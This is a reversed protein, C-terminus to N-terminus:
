NDMDNEVAEKMKKIIKESIESVVSTHEFDDEIACVTKFDCYKCASNERGDCPKLDFIGKRIGCATDKIKKEVFAFITKFDEETIVPNKARKKTPKQFVFRGKGEKDMADIVKDDNLIMGNMTLPNPNSNTEVGRKSPMYLIGAPIMDNYKSGSVSCIIYLYLLMQMNQGYLVDALCFEKSNTKYDVIRVHDKGDPNHLVDVRDIQGDVVVEQDDMFKLTLYPIGNKKNNISLEFDVPVFDSNKFQEVMHKLLIKLTKAMESYVFKFDVSDLFESGCITKLYDDMAIDVAKDIEEAQANSFNEGFKGIVKELVFHVVTGRQMNDLEAKQLRKLGLVYKYFYSLPCKSYVEIRSASLFMQNKFLKDCIDKSIRREIRAEINKLAEYRSEYIENNKYIDDLVVSLETSSNRVEAYRSFGEEFTEPLDKTNEAVSKPFVTKLKSFVSSEEVAKGDYDACHRLIYVKQSACCLSSYALFNEDIVTKRFRDSIEIGEKSLAVRDNRLLIGSDAAIAPFEGLNMGIAFVVKPRAPRIRDASGCAVEDLTRPISGISCSNFSLELMDIYEKVSISDDSYCRVMNDLLQMVSDWSQMIFDANDNDERELYKECYKKVSENVKFLMLSDYVAKSIEAANGDFSKKLALIPVIIRKRIENLRQLEDAIKGANSENVSEFGLPNMNWEKTWADGNIEWIYVYEEILNAEDASIPFLETKLLALISESKFSQASKLLSLVFRSVPSLILSRRKDLFCPTNYKKSALAIRREYKSIDRAIIVFDKFRYNETRVLKHITKFVYEVEEVPNKFHAIKINESNENFKIDASTSVAKELTFLENSDYHPEPLLVPKLVTINHEKAYAELKKVTDIVNSFVGNGSNGIAQRCSFSVVVNEAQLIMLKLVKLQLGTFGKFADIYVTKGNFFSHDIAKQYFCELDDLPDIYIGKLMDNYTSYIIAIESIKDALNGKKLKDCVSILMNSSVGATKFEKIVSVMQSIFSTSSIYKSFINLHPALKKLSRAMIVNRQSDDIRFGAIGGYLQGATECMRTFSLVEVKSMFGGGFKELMARETEFTNQEPVLLIVNKNESEVEKAIMNHIETTKGSAAPGMIFQLM